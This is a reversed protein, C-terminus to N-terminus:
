EGGAKAQAAISELASKNRSRRIRMYIMRCMACYIDIRDDPKPSYCHSCLAGGHMVKHRRGEAVMSIQNQIRATFTETEHSVDSM